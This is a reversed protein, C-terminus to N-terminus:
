FNMEAKIFEKAGKPGTIKLVIDRDTGDVNLNFSFFPCCARESKIFDVIETLTSDSGGFTYRYGNKLEQRDKVSKKLSEFVEDKRDRLEPSTLRCTLVESNPATKVKKRDAQNTKCLM